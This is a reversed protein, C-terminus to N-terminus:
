ASRFSYQCTKFWVIADELTKVVVLAYELPKAQGVKDQLM